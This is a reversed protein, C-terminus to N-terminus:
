DLFVDVRVVQGALDVLSVRELMNHSPVQFVKLEDVGIVMDKHAGVYDFMSVLYYDGNYRYVRLYESTTPVDVADHPPTTIFRELVSMDVVNSGPQRHRLNSNIANISTNLPSLSGVVKFNSAYNVLAGRTNVDITIPRNFGQLVVLLTGYEQSETPRIIAVHPLEASQSVASIDNDVSASGPNQTQSAGTLASNNIIAFKNNSSQIFSIPWPNGSTDYFALSSFSYPELAINAVKQSTSPTINYTGVEYRYDIPKENSVRKAVESLGKLKSIEEPPMGILQALLALKQAPTLNPLLDLWQQPDSQINLGEPLLVEEASDENGQQADTSKALAPCTIYLMGIFSLAVKGLRM